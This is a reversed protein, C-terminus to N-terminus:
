LILASKFLSLVKSNNPTNLTIIYAETAEISWSELKEHTHAM